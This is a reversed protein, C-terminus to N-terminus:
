WWSDYVVVGGGDHAGRAKEIFELDLQKDDPRSEGFFFGATYPLTGRNVADELADIDVPLLKVGVCNFDGFSGGDEDPNFPVEDGDKFCLRGKDEWLQEMFGQLNSHKRWQQLKEVDGDKTIACAYQDLGMIKIRNIILATFM